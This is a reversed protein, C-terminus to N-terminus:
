DIARMLEQRLEFGFGGALQSVAGDLRVASRSGHGAERAAARRQRGQGFRVAGNRKERAGRPEFFQQGEGAGAVQDGDAVHVGAVPGGVDAAARLEAVRQEADIRSLLRIAINRCASEALSPM